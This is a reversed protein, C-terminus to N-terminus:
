ASWSAMAPAGRDAPVPHVHHHVLGTRPPDRLGREVATQRSSPSSVTTSRSTSLAEPELLWAPQSQGSPSFSDSSTRYAGWTARPESSHPRSTVDHVVGRGYGDVDVGDDRFRGEPLRSRCLERLEAVQEPTRTALYDGVSGAPEEYPAWWDEFSAMPVTVALEGGAM